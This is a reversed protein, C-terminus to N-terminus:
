TRQGLYAPLGHDAVVEVDPNLRAVHARLLAIVQDPDQPPVLRLSVKAEAEPPVVTKIGKGQYGGAIGHVEFTPRGWIRQTVEAPDTARLKELQHARRFSDVSFGSEVFDRAESESVPQWTRDFGDILIQGTRADVCGAIVAALETIPNRAAG